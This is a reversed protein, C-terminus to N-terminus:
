KAAVSVNQRITISDDEDSSQGDLTEEVIQQLYDREAVALYEVQDVNDSHWAWRLFGREIYPYGMRSAYGRTAMHFGTLAWIADPNWRLL